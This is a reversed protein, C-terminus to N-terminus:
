LAEIKNLRTVLQENEVELAQIRNELKKILDVTQQTKTEISQIRVEKNPNM